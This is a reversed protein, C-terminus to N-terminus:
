PRVQQDQARHDVRLRRIVVEGYSDPTDGKGPNSQTYCGAKFYCGSRSVEWDMKLAGNRWVKIHGGSAQLKLDFPTGLKYDPDLEVDGTKNREIFLKKGEVFPGAGELAAAGRSGGARARIRLGDNSVANCITENLEGIRATRTLGRAAQGRPRLLRRAPTGDGFTRFGYQTEGLRVGGGSGAVM